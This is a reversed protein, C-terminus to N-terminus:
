GVQRSIDAQPNGNPKPAAQANQPNEKSGTDNLLQVVLQYLNPNGTQMEALSKYMAEPGQEKKVTKLFAAARQAIYRLDVGGAGQQIQSTMGAM